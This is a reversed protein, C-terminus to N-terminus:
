HYLNPEKALSLYRQRVVKAAEKPQRQRTFLGKKNGDVRRSSQDTQFDAFTWVLEGVLFTKRYKDLIPFYATLLDVQYDETFMTSPDKHFGDITGAGYESIMIPKKRVQYWNDLDYSLQYPVVEPHGSDSYWGYYRNLSIVDVYQAVVDNSFDHDTNFTIPRTPDLERARNTLTEFYPEAKKISSDPENALSWMVVSPRNKDRQFLETMMELHLQLTKNVLSQEGLGVAPTESIVVIGEQDCLELLEEAYPYVSTRFANVGMWKMLNIDKLTLPYDFGRGRVDADEHKGVGHFYFPKGNILFETDTVKVTRIGVALRYDDINAGDETINVQLPYLTGSNNSMTWPWWLNPNTLKLTVSANGNSSVNGSMSAEGLTLVFGTKTSSGSIHIDVDVNASGDDNLTSHVTIDDIYTMPTSYLKVPRDIGAYNTFDFQLNQVFYGPPYRPGSMYEVSGCPLTNPTLTNNVAVTVRNPKGKVLQDGVEAQFPLHGGEHTMVEKGNVWVVTNYHASEFLLFMRQKSDLWLNPVWFNREYWVWGVFDRLKADQSIDNFSSPVPMKIIEGTSVLPKTWWEEEFGANRSPSFDARFHWVGDLNKVLRTPSDKPFLLGNCNLIVFSLISLHTSVMMITALCIHSFISALNVSCSPYQGEYIM